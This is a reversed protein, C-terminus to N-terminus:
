IKLASVILIALLLGITEYANTNIYVAMLNVLIYAPRNQSAPMFLDRAKVM